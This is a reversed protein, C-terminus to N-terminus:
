AEAQLRFIPVEPRANFRVHLLHGVGRSIYMHRDGSLAFEGSTYRRNRVPLEPPPLFLRSASAVMHTVLFFGDKIAAGSRSMQATLSQPLARHQYQLVEGSRSYRAPISTRAGYIM